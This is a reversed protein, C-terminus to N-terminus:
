RIFFVYIVSLLTLLLSLVAKGIIYKPISLGADSLISGTQAIGSLGGFSLLQIASVYKISEKQLKNSDSKIHKVLFSRIEQEYVSDGLYALAGANMTNIENIDVNRVDLLILVCLFIFFLLMLGQINILKWYKKVQKQIYINKELM